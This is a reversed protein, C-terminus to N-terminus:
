TVVITKKHLVMTVFSKGIAFMENCQFYSTGHTIKYLSYTVEIGVLITSQYKIDKKWNFTEIEGDIACSGHDSLINM